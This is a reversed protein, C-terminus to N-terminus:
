DRPSPSTYLLCPDPHERTALIPASHAPRFAFAIGSVLANARRMVGDVIKDTNRPHFEVSVADITRNKILALMDNGAATEAIHLDITPEPLSRYSTVDAHGITEGRDGHTTVVRVRDAMELSDFAERYSTVGDDSVTRPEGWKALQVVVTRGDGHILESSERLLM